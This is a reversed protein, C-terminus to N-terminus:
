RIMSPPTIDILPLNITSEIANILPQTLYPLVLGIMLFGV